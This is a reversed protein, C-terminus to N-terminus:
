FCWPPLVHKQKRQWHPELVWCIAVGPLEQYIVTLPIFLCTPLSMSALVGLAGSDKEREQCEGSDYMQLNLLDPFGKAWVRGLMGAAEWLSDLIWFGVEWKWHWTESKKFHGPICASMMQKNDGVRFPCSLLHVQIIKKGINGPPSLHQSCDDWIFHTEYGWYNSSSRPYRSFVLIM